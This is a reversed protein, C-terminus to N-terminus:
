SGAAWPPNLVTTEQKQGGNTEDAKVEPQTGDASQTVSGAPVDARPPILSTLHKVENKVEKYSMTELRKKFLALEDEDLDKDRLVRFAAEAEDRLEKLAEAGSEALGEMEAVKAELEAAKEQLAKLEEDNMKDGGLTKDWKMGYQQELTLRIDYPLNGERIQREAKEVIVADPNCGAKVASVEILRAGVIEVECVVQKAQGNTVVEYTRGPWHYCNGAWLDSKCIQCIHKAGAYGVSVKSIVGEKIAEIFTDSNPYAADSLGWGRVLKFDAYVKKDDAMEASTSVGFGQTKYRHSDIFPVGAKAATVFNALSDDAMWEHANDTRGSSICARIFAYKSEDPNDADAKTTVPGIELYHM